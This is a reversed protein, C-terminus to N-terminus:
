FDNKKEKARETVLGLIEIIKYVSSVIGDDKPTPTVATIASALTVVATIIHVIDNNFIFDWM